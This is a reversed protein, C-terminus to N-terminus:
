KNKSPLIAATAIDPTEYVPEDIKNDIKYENRNFKSSKSEIPPEFKPINSPKKYVNIGQNVETNGDLSIYSSFNEKEINSSDKDLNELSKTFLNFSTGPGPLPHNPSEIYTYMQGPSDPETPRVLENKNNLDQYTNSKLSFCDKVQNIDAKTGSCDLDQYEQSNVTSLNPRNFLHKETKIPSKELEQYEPPELKTVITLNPNNYQNQETKLPSTELDQYEQSTRSPLNSQNCCGKTLKEYESDYYLNERTKEEKQSKSEKKLRKQRFYIGIFIISVITTIGLLVSVIIIILLNSKINQETPMKDITEDKFNISLNLSADRGFMSSVYVDEPCTSVCSITTAHRWNGLKNEFQLNTSTLLYSIWDGFINYSCLRNAVFVVVTENRLRNFYRIFAQRNANRQFFNGFTSRMPQNFSTNYTKKNKVDIILAYLGTKGKILEENNVNLSAKFCSPRTKVIVKNTTMGNVDNIACVLTIVITLVLDMKLKCKGVM